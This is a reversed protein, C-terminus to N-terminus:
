FSGNISLGIIHVNGSVEGRFTGTSDTEQIDVTDALIFSYGFDASYSSDIQYSAGASLWYRDSDPIRLTRFEKSRIPSEDFALGARLTWKDDYSYTSGLAIRFTDKWNERKAFDQAASQITLEEFVSWNTWTISSLITWQDNIQHHGSLEISQPLEQEVLAEIQSTSIPLVDTTLHGDLALDVKSYYALGFRTSTNIQYLTGLNFGYTWCDGEVDVISAGAAPSVSSMSTSLRGEAFIADFGAGLSWQENLRYAIKPSIYYTVIESLNAQSTALFDDSYDTSLGFRSHLALGLALDDSLKNSFYAYPILAAQAAKNDSTHLEKSSGTPIFTGSIDINPAIYSLGASASWKDLLLMSAANTAISSADEAISAEGAFARGLGSTSREQLQFGASLCLSSTSAFSSLFILSSRQPTNLM